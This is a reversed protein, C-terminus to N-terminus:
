ADIVTHLVYNIDDEKLYESWAIVCYGKKEVIKVCFRNKKTNDGEKEVSFMIGDCKRNKFIMAKNNFFITKAQLPEKGASTQDVKSTDEDSAVLRIPYM